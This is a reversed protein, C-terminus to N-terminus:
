LNVKLSLSLLDADYDRLTQNSERQKKSYSMSIDFNRHIKYNLTLSQNNYIDDLSPTNDLSQASYDRNERGVKARVSVKGSVKWNTSFNFGTNESYGGIVDESSAIRKFAELNFRLLGTPTWAYSLSANTGQYDQQPINPHARTVLSIRANINSKGTVNWLTTLAFVNQTYENDITSVETVVRNPLEGQTTQLLLGIRSGTGALYSLNLSTTTQKLDLFQLGSTDYSSDSIDLGVGVRWNPHFLWGGSFGFVSSTRESTEFGDLSEFDALSVSQNAALNGSFKSGVVWNWNANMKKALNDLQENNKYRNDVLGVGFSLVQRSLNWDVDVGLASKYITDDATRDSALLDTNEVRYINSDNLTTISFYPKINGEAYSLVPM